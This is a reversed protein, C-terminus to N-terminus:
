AAQVFAKQRMRRLGNIWRPEPNRQLNACCIRYSCAFGM